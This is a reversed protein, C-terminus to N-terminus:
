TLAALSITPVRVKFAGSLVNLLVTVRNAGDLSILTGICNTFPGAIVRVEGGLSLDRKGAGVVDEADSRSRLEEIFGDPLPVPRGGHNILNRVGFTGNVSRWAQLAPDFAVFVYGPFLPALRTEFKHARRHTERLRPMWAKFGQRALHTLARLEQRPRARAVYWRSM